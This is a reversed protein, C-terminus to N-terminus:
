NVRSFYFTKSFLLKKAVIKIRSPNILTVTVNLTLGAGPPSMTGKYIKSEPYYSLKKLVVSDKPDNNKEFQKGYLLGDHDKFIEITSLQEDTENRWKGTITIDQTNHFSYSLIALFLIGCLAIQIQTIM